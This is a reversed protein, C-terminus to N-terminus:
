LFYKRKLKVLRILPLCYRPGCRPADSGRLQIRKGMPHGLNNKPKALKRNMPPKMSAFQFQVVLLSCRGCQDAEVSDSKAPEVFRRDYWWVKQQRQLLDLVSSNAFKYPYCKIVFWSRNNNWESKTVYPCLQHHTLYSISDIM